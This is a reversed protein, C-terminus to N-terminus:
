LSFRDQYSDKKQNTDSYEDLNHQETEEYLAQKDQQAGRTM